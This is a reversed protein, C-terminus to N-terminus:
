SSHDKVIRWQGDVRRFLLSFHGRWYGEMFCDLNGENWCRVQQDMISQIAEQDESSQAQTFYSPVFCFGLL